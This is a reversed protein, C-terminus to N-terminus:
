TFTGTRSLLYGCRERSEAFRKVKEQEPHIEQCFKCGDGYLSVLVSKTNVGNEDPAMWQKIKKIMTKLEIEQYNASRGVVAENWSDKLPDVGALACPLAAAITGLRLVRM